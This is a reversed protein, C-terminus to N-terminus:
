FFQQVETRLMSLAVNHPNREHKAMSDFIAKSLDLSTAQSPLNTAAYNIMNITEEKVAKIMTWTQPTVFIQQSINHDFEGRIDLLLATQLDRATMGTQHVRMILSHPSIREVFLTLREYAQLRLPTISSQNNLRIELLKKQYDNELYSNLIFYATLFVITAPLVLKLLDMTFDIWNM